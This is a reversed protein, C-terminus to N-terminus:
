EAVDQMAIGDAAGVLKAATVAEEPATASLQVGMSAGSYQVFTVYLM